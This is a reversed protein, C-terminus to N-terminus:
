GEQTMNLLGIGFLLCVVGCVSLGVGVAIGGWGSEAFSAASIPILLLGFFTIISGALALLLGAFSM